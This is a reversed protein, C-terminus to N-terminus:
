RFAAEAARAVDRYAAVWKARGDPTLPGGSTGAHDNLYQEIADRALPHRDGISEGKMLLKRTRVRLEDFAVGTKFFPDSQMGDWELERAIEDCIACVSAADAAASEGVFKGRLDLSVVPAPSPEPEPEPVPVMSHETYWVVGALCLLGAAIWQHTEISSAKARVAAVLEKSKDAYLLAAATAVLLATFM